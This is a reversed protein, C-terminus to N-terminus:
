RRKEVAERLKTIVESPDKAGFVASGAVIVNAGADAAQDITKKSLGGDVEINMEPYKERLEKVKPMMDAMFSQGGFGPEVTMVLVMDPVEEKNESDLIPYLVDVPTKPKVAIGARLGQEHIFRILKAPSTKEETQGSPSDAATSQLAAEYHFCYLDCGAKKFEKVWRHPEAIMMHCDFTGRGFASSPKEVHPRIMTVVPAGFTMNPVFHGDMIDIHLWDAGQSMTDSCAKGLAAFDASLISPAIIPTPSM